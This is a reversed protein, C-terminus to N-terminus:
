QKSVQRGKKQNKTPKFKLLRGNKLIYVTEGTKERELLVNRVAKRMAQLATSSLVLLDQHNM